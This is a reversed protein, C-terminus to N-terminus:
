KVNDSLTELAPQLLETLKSRLCSVSNRLRQCVGMECIASMDSSKQLHIQSEFYRKLSAHAVNVLGFSENTHMFRSIVYGALLPQRAKVLESIFYPLLTASFLEYFADDETNSVERSMYNIHLLQSEQCLHSYRGALFCLYSFVTRYASNTAAISIIGSSLTLTFLEPDLTVAGQIDGQNLKAELADLCQLQISRYPLLLTLKLAAFCDVGIALDALRQADDEDLFITNSKSLSRDLLELVLTFRSLSILKKIIEMWCLHFPHVVVSKEEKEPLPEEQFSEWGEDWEDSSWNKVPDSEKVPDDQDKGDSFLEEWEELIAQLAEFHVQTEAAKCLCLFYSVATDLSLLDDPTIEASPSVAAALQTSRLAVLTSTYKNSPDRQIPVGHNAGECSSSSCESEDWGEWPHVSSLFESPLGKLNRGAISQMLELAYVRVHNKLHISESFTYLKGWVANRIKNLDELDGELKGLTSLLNYLVQREDSENAIDLLVRDLINLYLLLLDQVRDVNENGDVGLSPSNQEQHVARLFVESIAKFGCGSFVMARCFNSAEADSASFVHKVCKSIVAWGQRASVKGEEVMNMFVKICNSLSELDFKLAKGDSSDSSLIEQTDDILRVWFKLVLVLCDIWSPEDQLSGSCVDLAVSSICYKKTIDLVDELLLDKIYIRVCDYNQELEDIFKQFVGQDEFKAHAGSESVLNTMSSIIYYKYVDQWSILGKATSDSYISGLNQAMKALSEVSFENIYKCIEDNFHEVNLNGVGAINKFNLNKIFSVRECEQHLIKYFLSLEVTLKFAQDSSCLTSLPDNANNLHSYCDSFINFIYALRQKNCGDIVPFVDSAIATIVRSAGTIVKKQYESLETIIDDDEWVESVLVSCLYRLLMENHDLGYTFALKLVEKLRPKKERKVLDFLFVLSSEICQSDGSLFKAADVGPIIQELARSQDNFLKQEELKSKWERWFTSDVKDINDIADSSFPAHKDQFKQLLLDRRKTPDGCESGFNHLSSYLMGMNMIRSVDNYKDRVKLQEEIVEVGHFADGLNLLFSFGLIDEEDTVPAEMVSKALNAILHDSPAISNRALWSLITVLAQTRISLWQCGDTSKTGSFMKGYEIKRSLDLLWPLQLDTFSLIKGNERLLSEWNSENKVSLDKAVASLINKVKGFHLEEDNDMGEVADSRDSLNALEQVGQAPLSILSSGEISFNPPTSGTSMMLTECQSQVDLDKWAHLLESISEEDCYSLAFGLLQKRSSIDINDLNPGRAIAACLDWIPGHGKKALVLCLDFALQFDGTDVAERAVAEQVAAIDEPSSLGLLQAIEILEDVNVYAGTQSKIVMNIIEMPDKIQRYQVPLLTVGLNPLKNTLADIVDAEAKVNRSNPFINLCEKAKWIESCALSSASFFYERAAQIVLNEAKEMALNITGTGKLYNRALSFKGSKLLGRCFETLMYELDLFPFAKEQFLQMDRWMNAWDNDSRSPQRRGFKSLILRLIQKVGKQDSRAELFFEMPKPVQYYALLRGVEVHGEAIKVRKELNETSSGGDKIQPLKSLISAMINWRDTLACLYVCDLACRVAESEDKFIGNDHFNRCGEEIVVLCVDLKNDSAVEKLWTVLFSDTPYSLGSYHEDTAKDDVRSPPYRSLMFPIAKDRLIEVVKDDKGRDLMMRFKEYDSLREWSDLTIVVNTEEDTDESYILQHLYSISQYFPQLEAIGKKCAFELLSLCNELQGSLADINMARNKYWISLEDVSPWVFGFSQKLISETRVSAGNDHIQSLQGIYTVMESCEVWDEDRLVITTPPSRGPLLQGYNQISVTEPIAALIELMFPALSYPHRKFLLNLAGIKGSGALSVAAESLPLIRFKRYEQVSFRGMNIGVFTELRDRYQLLQLRFMRFDWIESCECDVSESFRYKDTIKLGHALLAKVAEETSGVKDICESLVFAQDRVNSLFMTVDNTGQASHLWQSKFIEDRDLGHFNAFDMADQYQQNNILIQYMDGVSKESFSLLSWSLRSIDFQYLGDRTDERKTWTHVSQDDVLANREESSTTQLLFICAPHHQVREVLPTSFVPNNDLVEKGTHSDLMTVLGSMKAVVIVSDSWWTFDTVDNLCKSKRNSSEASQSSSSEAFDVSSLSHGEDDAYFLSLSGSLDLVAVCKGHPSLVVKPTILPDVYNSPKGSFGELQVACIVPELDLNSKMHWLSLSYSGDSSSASVAVLLSLEPCYDLCLINRPFLKKTAIPPILAVSGQVVEVQHLLGDSAVIIFKCLCSSEPHADCHVILGAIPASGKLQKTTMRTIEEGNAKIFHLTNADDVAALVDHYDSWAGLIFTSLRDDCTFVGCPYQYDDSKQLITIQNRAAVAVHEGSPSVFLTIWKKGKMPHRYKDWKDKLRSIGRMSLYSLVGGAAGGDDQFCLLNSRITSISFGLNLRFPPVKQPPYRPSFARTAHHRTEYLVKSSASEVAM